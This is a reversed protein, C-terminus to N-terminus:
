NKPKLHYTWQSILNESYKFSTEWFQSINNVSWHYLDDYTQLDQDYTRNVIDIFKNIHTDSTNAPKWLIENM